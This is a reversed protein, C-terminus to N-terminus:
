KKRGGGSLALVAGSHRLLGCSKQATNGGAQLFVFGRLHKVQAPSHALTFESSTTGGGQTM